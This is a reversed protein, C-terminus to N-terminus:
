ECFKRVDWGNDGLLERAAETGKASGDVGAREDHASQLEVVLRQIHRIQPFM